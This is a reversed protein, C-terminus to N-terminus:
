EKKKKITNKKIKKFLNVINEQPTFDDRKSKKACKECLVKIWGKSTQGVSEDFAGCDECIFYSLEESAIVLSHIHDDGGEYYFRLGGFKEKIQSAVVQPIPPENEWNHGNKILTQRYDIYSQISKCLWDILFFWGDNTEIGWHMCTKDMPGYMDRFIKPYKKIFHKELLKNM